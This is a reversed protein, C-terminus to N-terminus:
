WFPAPISTNACYRKNMFCHVLRFLAHHSWDSRSIPNEAPPLHGVVWVQQRRGEVLVQHLVGRRLLQDRLAALHLQQVAKEGVQVLALVLDGGERKGGRAHLQATSTMANVGSADATLHPLLSLHRHM